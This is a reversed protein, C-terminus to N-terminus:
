EEELEKRNNLFKRVVVKVLGEANRFLPDKLIEVNEFMQLLIDKFLLTGGGMFIIKEPEYKGFHELISNRLGDEYKKLATIIIKKADIKKGLKSFGKGNRIIIEIEHTTKIIDFNAKLENQLYEFFKESGYDFTKNKVPGLLHIYQVIATKRGIDIGLIDKNIWSEEIIFNNNIVQSMFGIWCQFWVGVRKIYFNKRDIEKGKINFFVVEHKGKLQDIIEIDKEINDKTLNIGLIIEQNNKKIMKAVAILTYNISKELYIKDDSVYQIEDPSAIKTCINGYGVPDGGKISAIIDDEKSFNLIPYHKLDKFNIYIYKSDFSKRTMKKGDYSIIKIGKRGADVGVILM